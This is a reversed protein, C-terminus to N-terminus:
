PLINKRKLFKIRYDSTRYLAVVDRPIPQWQKDRSSNRRRMLPPTRTDERHRLTWVAAGDGGSRRVLAAVVPVTISPRPCLHVAVGQDAAGCPPADLQHAM